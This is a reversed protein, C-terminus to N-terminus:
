YLAPHSLIGNRSRSAMMAGTGLPTVQIDVRQPQSSSQPTRKAEARAVKQQCHNIQRAFREPLVTAEYSPYSPVTTVVEPALDLTFGPLLPQWLHQHHKTSLPFKAAAPRLPPFLHSDLQCLRDHMLMAKRFYHREPTVDPATVYQLVHKGFKQMYSTIIQNDKLNEGLMYIIVKLSQDLHLANLRASQQFSTLYAASPIDV